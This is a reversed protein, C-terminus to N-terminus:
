SRGRREEERREIFATIKGRFFLHYILVILGPIFVIIHLLRQARLPAALDARLAAPLQDPNLPGAWTVAGLFLLILALWIM